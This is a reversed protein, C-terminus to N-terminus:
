YAGNTVDTSTEGHGKMRKKRWFFPWSSRTTTLHRKLRMDFQEFEEQRMSVVDDLSDLPEQVGLPLRKFVQLVAGQQKTVELIAEECESSDGVALRAKSPLRFCRM